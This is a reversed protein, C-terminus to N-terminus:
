VHKLLGPNILHILRLRLKKYRFAAIIFKFIATYKKLFNGYALSPDNYGPLEGWNVNEIESKFKILNQQIKSRFTFYKNRHFIQEYGSIVVFIPLHDSIDILFLSSISQNLPENTFINDILLTKHSTIRTPRTILPFFMRSFILDLFEGTAQHCPHNMLNLNWDGMLLMTKNEESIVSVLQELQLIFDRFKCDPPRYIVGIVINKGKTRNIEVFLSEACEKIFVLDACHKFELCDALYLGAGGSTRGVRDNYTFNFGIIDCSHSSDDLWIESIGIVSFKLAVSGLFNPFRDFKYSISHVNLHPLALSSKNNTNINLDM